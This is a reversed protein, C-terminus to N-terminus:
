GGQLPLLYIPEIRYTGNPLPAQSVPLEEALYSAETGAVGFAWIVDDRAQAPRLYAGYLYGSLGDYGAPELVAAVDPHLAGIGLEGGDPLFRQLQAGCNGEPVGDLVLQWWHFLLPDPVDLVVMGPSTWTATCLSADAEGEEALLAISVSADGQAPAGEEILIAASLTWWVPAPGDWGGSDADSDEPAVSSDDGDGSEVLPAFGDALACGVSCALACASLARSLASFTM